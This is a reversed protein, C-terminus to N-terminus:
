SKEHSFYYKSGVLFIYSMLTSVASGIMGFRSTLILNCLINILASGLTCMMIVNDRGTAYLVYHPVFSINLVAIAVILVVYTSFNEYFEPKGIIEIAPAIGFLVILSGGLSVILVQKFFKVRYEQYLTFESNTYYEVLRPYLQAIVLTFVLTQLVNAFNYYFTYVGVAKKDLYYDLFYRDSFEIVKYAITGILFRTAIPVGKRIWIWNIESSFSLNSYHRSIRVFGVIVSIGVGLVWWFFIARLQLGVFDSAVWYGIAPLIWAAMRLFLLINAFLQNGFLIFLRYLEQSFHELIVILYFWTLYQIPLVDLFFVALSVPLVVLYTAIFFVISNSLMGVQLSKDSKLIERHAYAYFDFGLFFITITITTNFLGFVGLDETSYYKGLGLVLVFRLLITLGRIGLNSVHIVIERAM